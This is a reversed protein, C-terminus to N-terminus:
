AAGSGTAARHLVVLHDWMRDNEENTVQRAKDADHWAISRAIGQAFSVTAKFDPVVRKIKSNDFVVSCAKDGFLGPGWQPYVRAIFDSSIHVLEIECGAARAITQYIQDWTMVEDSTIHFAEGIAQPNGFLGVFGLAFDTHCTMVWLSQGDGQSVIPKGQRMRHLVPYGHGGVGNPIWTPGYTYSPRVITIPFAHQRYASVLRDECAIKLQSYEWFPNYLPTSETIVYYSPPKQYVSATSIFIYQGVRGSFAAVAAEVQEPRYAVFDAVVDYHGNEAAQRLVGPDNRDGLITQVANGWPSPQHGRNLLHVEYGRKLALDVCATSINGTGGIFLIRM